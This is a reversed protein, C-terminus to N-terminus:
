GAKGSREGSRSVNARGDTMLVILPTRGRARQDHALLRAGDIGSALPTAGGGALGALCRRARTLSRTPPVVLRAEDDRLALLAVHDRRTYCDALVQEVAGKAEALRKMAASGSADVAFIVCTETPQRHQRVRFDEQRVLVRPADARALRRRFRQWPAAARLTSVLALREPPRPTGLRVGAPRGTASSRSLAGSRGASQAGRSSELALGDLLGQPIGSRVADLLVEQPPAEGVADSEASPAAESRSPAQELIPDDDHANSNPPDNSKTPEREPLDPVRTARPGLVLRAALALDDDGVAARGEVSAHACAVRAAQLLPRLGAVGAAEAVRALASLDDDGITAAHSRAANIADFRPAYEGPLSSPVLAGLDLLLACRDILQPLPAEGPRGEDLLVLGLPCEVREALGERELRVEQHDVAACLHAATQSEIREAMPAVLVGSRARALLGEEVVVRGTRLTQGLALAGLLRDDTTHAPMRVMPASQALAQRIWRMLVDRQPGPAARVCLGGLAIPDLAFLEVALAVEAWGAEAPRRQLAALTSEM